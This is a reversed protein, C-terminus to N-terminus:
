AELSARLRQAFDSQEVCWSVDAAFERGFAALGECAAQLQAVAEDLVVVPDAVPADVTTEAPAAENMTRSNCIAEGQRLLAYGLNMDAQAATAATIDYEHWLRRATRAADVALAHRRTHTYLTALHSWAVAQQYAPAAPARAGYGIARRLWREAREPHGELRADLGLSVAVNWLEELSGSEIYLLYAALDARYARMPNDQRRLCSGLSEWARAALRVRSPDLQETQTVGLLARAVADRLTTEAAQLETKKLELMGLLLPKWARNALVSEDICEVNATVDRLRNDKLARLARRAHEDEPQLIGTPRATAGLTPEIRNM